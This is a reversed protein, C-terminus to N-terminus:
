GVKRKLEFDVNKYVRTCDLNAGSLIVVEIIGM